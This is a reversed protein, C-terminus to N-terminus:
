NTYLTHPKPQLEKRKREKGKREKGKREKGKRKKEKRKKRKKEKRKKREKRGEKIERKKAFPLGSAEAVQITPHTYWWPRSFGHNWKGDLALAEWFVYL